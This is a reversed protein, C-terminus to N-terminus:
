NNQELKKVRKQLNKIQKKVKSLEANPQKSEIAAELRDLRLQTTYYFGGLVAVIAFLTILQKIDLNFKM